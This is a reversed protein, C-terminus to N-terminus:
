GDAADATEAVDDAAACLILLSIFSCVSPADDNSLFRFALSLSTASSINFVMYGDLSRGPPISPVNNKICRVYPLCRTEGRQDYAFDLGCGYKTTPSTYGALSLRRRNSSSPIGGRLPGRPTVRSRRAICVWGTNIGDCQLVIPLHVVGVM